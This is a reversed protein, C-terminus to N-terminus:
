PQFLNQFLGFSNLFLISFLFEFFISFPFPASAPRPRAEPGSASAPGVRGREGGVGRECGRRTWARPRGRLAATALGCLEAAAHCAHSPKSAGEDAVLLARDREGRDESGNAGALEEERAREGESRARLAGGYGNSSRAGGRGNKGLAHAMRRNTGGRAGGESRRQPVRRRASPLARHAGSARTEKEPSLVAAACTTRTGGHRGAGGLYHM